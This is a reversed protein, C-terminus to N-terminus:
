CKSCIIRSAECLDFRRHVWHGCDLHLSVIGATGHPAREIM